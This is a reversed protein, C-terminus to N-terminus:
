VITKIKGIQLDHQNLHRKIDDITELFEIQAKKFASNYGTEVATKLKDYIPCSIGDVSQMGSVIRLETMQKQLSYMWALVAFLCFIEVIAVWM